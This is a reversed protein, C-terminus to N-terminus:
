IGDNNWLHFGCNLCQTEFITFLFLRHHFLKKCRPCISCGALVLSLFFVLAASGALWELVRPVQVSNFADFVGIFFLFIVLALCSGIHIKHVIRLTKIEGVFEAMPTRYGPYSEGWGKLYQYIRLEVFLAEARERDEPRVLLRSPATSNPPSLDTAQGLGAVEAQMGEQALADAVYAAELPNSIEVGIVTPSKSM